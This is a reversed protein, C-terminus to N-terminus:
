ICYDNTIKKYADKIIFDVAELVDPGNKVIKISIQDNEATVCYLVVEGTLLVEAEFICNHILRLKTALSETEQPRDIEISHKTGNPRLYQTFPIM